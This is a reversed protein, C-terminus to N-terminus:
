ARSCRVKAGRNGSLGALARGQLRGYIHVDGDALVEAGSSVNGFVVLSTNEAYVQQGSRVTDSVIMTPPLEENDAASEKADRRSEVECKPAKTDRRSAVEGSSEISDMGCAAPSSMHSSASTANEDSSPPANSRRSAPQANTPMIAPLSHAKAIEKLDEGANSLAIPQLGLKCITDLLGRFLDGTIPQFHPSGTASVEQADLVVASGSFFNPSRAILGQMAEHLTTPTHERISAVLFSRFTLSHRGYAASM